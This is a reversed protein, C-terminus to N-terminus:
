KSKGQPPKNLPYPTAMAWMSEYMQEYYDFLSWNKRRQLLLVPGQLGRESPRMVGLYITGEDLLHMWMRLKDSQLRVEINDAAGKLGSLTQLTALTNIRDEEAAAEVSKSQEATLTPDFLGLRHRAQFRLTEVSKSSPDTLLLRIKCGPKRDEEYWSLFPQKISSFSIGLYSYQRKAERFVERSAIAEFSEHYHVIGSYSVTHRSRWGLFILIAGVIAILGMALHVAYEVGSQWILAVPTTLGAIFMVALAFPHEFIRKL